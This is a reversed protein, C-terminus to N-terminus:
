GLWGSLLASGGLLLLAAAGAGIAGAALPSLRPRRPSAQTWPEAEAREAARQSSRSEARVRSIVPGRDGVSAAAFAAQGWPEAIVDLPTADFGHARQAEQLAEGFERMSAFRDGPRPRMAQALVADLHGYAGPDPLGPYQGKRIRAEIKERSNQTREPLEFPSRQAAFSFLTAALSWIESAVTGATQKAILEPAAWPISMAIGEPHEEADLAASIGFDSLVPRGLGSVLVNSPKIDRHLVGSRHATELAGALRVGTDLVADLPLRAARSRVSMSDPCYEMAIFPHGDAAISAQYVTLISPHTSLRATIDAEAEFTRRAEPDAGLPPLVKVAVLRRPMDQEYLFVEAFGGSGLPRLYSHGSIAPPRIPARKAM